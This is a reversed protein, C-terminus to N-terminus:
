SGVDDTLDFLLGTGNHVALVQDEFLGDLGNTLVVHPDLEDTAHDEFQGHVHGGLGLKGSACPGTGASRVWASEARARVPGRPSIRAKAMWGGTVGGLSSPSMAGMTWLGPASTWPGDVDRSAIDGDFIGKREV